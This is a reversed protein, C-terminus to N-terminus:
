IDNINVYTLLSFVKLNRSLFLRFSLAKAKKENSDLAGGKLGDHEAGQPSEGTAYQSPHVIPFQVTSHAQTTGLLFGHEAPSKCAQAADPIFVTHIRM